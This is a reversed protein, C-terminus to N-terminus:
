YAQFHKKLKIKIELRFMELKLGSKKGLYKNVIEHLKYM